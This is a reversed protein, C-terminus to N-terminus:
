YEIQLHEMMTNRSTANLIDLSIPKKWISM